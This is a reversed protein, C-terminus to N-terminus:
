DGPNKKYKSINEDGGADESNPNVFKPNNYFVQPMEEETGPKVFAVGPVITTVHLLAGEKKSFAEMNAYNILNRKSMTNEKRIFIM